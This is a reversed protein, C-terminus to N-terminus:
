YYTRKIIPYPRGKMYGWGICREDYDKGNPKYNHYIYLIKVGFNNRIFYVTSDNDSYEM